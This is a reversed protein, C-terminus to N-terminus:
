DLVLIRWSLSFVRRHARRMAQPIMLNELRSINKESIEKGLKPYNGCMYANILGRSFVQPPNETAREAGRKERISPRAFELQRPRGPSNAWNVWHLCNASSQRLKGKGGSMKLQFSEWATLQLVRLIQKMQRGEELSRQRENVTIGTNVIIRNSWSRWFHFHYM